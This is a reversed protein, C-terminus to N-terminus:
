IVTASSLYHPSLGLHSKFGCESFFKNWDATWICSNWANVDHIHIIYNLSSLLMNHQTWSAMVWYQNLLISLALFSWMSKHGTTGQALVMTQGLLRCGYNGKVTLDNNIQIDRNCIVPVESVRFWHCRAWGICDMFIALLKPNACWKKKIWMCTPMPFAHSM